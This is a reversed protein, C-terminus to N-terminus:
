GPTSLSEIKCYLGLLTCLEDCKELNKKIQKNKEIKYKQFRNQKTKQKHFFCQINQYICLVVCVSYMSECWDVYVVCVICVCVGGNRETWGTDQTGM